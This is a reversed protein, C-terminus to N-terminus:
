NESSLSKKKEFQKLRTKIKEIKEKMVISSEYTEEIGKMVREYFSDVNYLM